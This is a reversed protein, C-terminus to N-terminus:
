RAKVFAADTDVNIVIEIGGRSTRRVPFMWRGKMRKMSGRNGFPDHVEVLDDLEIETSDWFRKPKNLKWSGRDIVAPEANGEGFAQEYSGDAKILLRERGFAHVIEYRGVVASPDVSGWSCGAIFAFAVLTGVLRRAVAKSLVSEERDM